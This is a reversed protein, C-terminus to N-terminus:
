RNRHAMEVSRGNGHSRPIEQSDSGITPGNPRPSQRLFFAARHDYRFISPDM